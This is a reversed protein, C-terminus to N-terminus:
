DRQVAILDALERHLRAMVRAKAKFVANVTVGLRSAVEPAPKEEVVHEWFAQWTSPQFLERMTPLVQGFVYRQFDAQEVGDAPSPTTDQPQAPLGSPLKLRRAKELYKNRTVIFLWNRFGKDSDYTFEPLKQVLTTFVEQVLDLADAHQLGMHGAWAYLLPSYLRVFRTWALPDDARKLHGLLSASTTQM